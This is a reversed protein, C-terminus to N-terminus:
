HGWRGVTWGPPWKNTGRYRSYSGHGGRAGRNGRHHGGTQGGAGKDQQIVPLQGSLWLPPPVLKPAPLAAQQPQTMRAAPTAWMNAPESASGGNALDAM